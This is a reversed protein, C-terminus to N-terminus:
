LLLIGIKIKKETFLLQQYLVPFFGFKNFSFLFLFSSCYCAIHPPKILIITGILNLITYTIMNWPLARHSRKFTFRTFAPNQLSIVKMWQPCRLECVSPITTTRLNPLIISEELFCTFAKFRRELFISLWMVVCFKIYSKLKGHSNLSLWETTDSEKCGWPSYPGHLEGPWFVPIPLRERRWPIKGVWPNFMAPLNKVMQSVLFGM